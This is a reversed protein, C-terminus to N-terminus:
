SYWLACPLAAGSWPMSHWSMLEFGVLAAIVSLDAEYISGTAHSGNELSVVKGGRAPRVAPSGVPAEPERRISAVVM